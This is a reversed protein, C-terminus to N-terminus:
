GEGLGIILVLVRQKTIPGCLRLKFFSQAFVVSGGSDMTPVGLLFEYFARLESGAGPLWDAFYNTVTVPKRDPGYPL